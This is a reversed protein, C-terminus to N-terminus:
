KDEHFLVITRCFYAYVVSPPHQSVNNYFGFIIGHTEEVTKKMGSLNSLSSDLASQDSLAWTRGGGMCYLVTRVFSFAKDEV